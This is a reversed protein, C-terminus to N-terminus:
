SRVFRTGCTYQVSLTNKAAPFDLALGKLYESPGLEFGLTSTGGSNQVAHRSARDKPVTPDMHEGDRLRGGSCRSPTTRITGSRERSCRNPAPSSRTSRAASRIQERLRHQRPARSWTTELRRSPHGRLHDHLQRPPRPVLLRRSGVLDATLTPRTQECLEVAMLGRWWGLRRCDSVMGPPTFLSGYCITACAGSDSYPSGFTRLGPRGQVAFADFRRSAVHAALRAFESRGFGPPSSWRAAVASGKGCARGARHLVVEVRASWASAFM